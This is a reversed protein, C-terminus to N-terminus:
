SINWFVLQQFLIAKAETVNDTTMLSTRLEVAGPFGNIYIRFYKKLVSYNKTIGWSSDWLDLHIILLGVKDSISVPEGNAWELNGDLSPKINPNFLFINTLIGRGIMIGDLGYQDVKAKAEKISQIDGNGLILTKDQQCNQNWKEIALKTEDDTLVLKDLLQLIHNKAKTQDIIGTKLDTQIKELENNLNHTTLIQKILSM